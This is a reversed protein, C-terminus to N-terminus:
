ALKEKRREALTKCLSHITELFTGHEAEISEARAMLELLDDSPTTPEVPPPTTSVGAPAQPPYARLKACAHFFLKLQYDRAIHVGLTSGDPFILRVPAMGRRGEIARVRLDHSAFKKM